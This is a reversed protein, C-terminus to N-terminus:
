ASADAKVEEKTSKEKDFIVKNEERVKEFVEKFKVADAFVLTLFSSAM